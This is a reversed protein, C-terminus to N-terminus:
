ITRNLASQLIISQRTLSRITKSRKKRDRIKKASQLKRSVAALDAKLFLYQPSVGLITVSVFAPNGADADYTRFPYGTDSPDLVVSFTLDQVSETFAISITIYKTRADGQSFGVENGGFLDTGHNFHTRYSATGNQSYWAMSSYTVGGSPDGSIVVPIQIAGARQNVTIQSVGFSVNIKAEARNPAGALAGFAALTAALRRSLPITVSM